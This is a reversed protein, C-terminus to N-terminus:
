ARDLSSSCSMLSCNDLTGGCVFFSWSADTLILVVATTLLLLTSVLVLNECTLRLPSNGGWITCILLQLQLRSVRNLLLTCTMVLYWSVHYISRFAPEWVITVALLLLLLLLMELRMLMLLRMRFQWLKILQLLDTLNAYYLSLFFHYWLWSFTSSTSRAWAFLLLFHSIARSLWIHMVRFVNCCCRASFTTALDRWQQVLCWERVMCVCSDLVVDGVAVWKIHWGWGKM